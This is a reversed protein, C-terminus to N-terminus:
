TLSCIARRAYATFAGINSFDFYAALTAKQYVAYEKLFSSPCRYHCLKLSIKSRQKSGPKM